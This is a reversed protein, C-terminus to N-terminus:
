LLIENSEVFWDQRAIFEKLENTYVWKQHYPLIIEQGHDLTKSNDQIM